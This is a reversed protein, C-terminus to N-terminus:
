VRVKFVVKYAVYTNRLGDGRKEYSPVAIEAMLLSYSQAFPLSM